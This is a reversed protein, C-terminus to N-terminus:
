RAPFFVAFTTGREPGSDVTIFGQYQQVIGYVTSLGLGTGKEPDKTTFFPEFIHTKVEDSMGLGTDAVSLTVYKGPEAGLQDTAEGEDLEVNSTSITLQGGQPMADRANVVLNLLVQEIRGSEAHFTHLGDQLEVRLEINREILREVMRQVDAVVRNLSIEETKAPEKRSFALLQRTLVSAREAAKKVEDLPARTAEQHGMEGLAMETYGHIVTLLNNFDHAVGGALRGVAEMKQSQLLQAELAQRHREGREQLVQTLTLRLVYTVFAMTLVLISFRPAKELFMLVLTLVFASPLLMYLYTWIRRGTSAADARSESKPQWLLIGITAATCPISYGLDFWSGSGPIQWKLIAVSYLGSGLTYLILFMTLVAYIHVNARHRMHITLAFFAGAFLLDLISYVSLIQALVESRSEAGLPAFVLFFFYVASVAIAAQTFDLIRLWDPGTGERPGWPLVFIAALPLYYAFFFIDGLSFAPYKEHLVDLYITFFLQGTAWFAFSSAAFYSTKKLVDPALRGARVFAVATMAVIVFQMFNSFASGRSTEGLIALGIAHLAMLGASCWIWLTSPRVNSQASM